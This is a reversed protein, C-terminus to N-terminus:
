FCTSITLFVVAASRIFDSRRVGMDVLLYDPLEALASGYVWRKQGKREAEVFLLGTIRRWLFRFDGPEMKLVVAGNIEQLHM